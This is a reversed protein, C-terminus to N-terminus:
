SSPWVPLRRCHHHDPIQQAAAPHLLDTQQRRDRSPRRPCLLVGAPRLQEEGGVRDFCHRAEGSASTSLRHKTLPRSRAKRSHEYEGVTVLGPVSDFSRNVVQPADPDPWYPWQGSISLGAIIREPKWAAMHWPLSAAASHEMPLLPAAALEDYGSGQALDTMMQDLRKGAGLDFRFHGDFGPAVWVEAFDLEALTQRFLPHELIGIEEMNHQAFVVGRVHKCSPPIWLFARAEGPESGPGKPVPVSWQWEAACVSLNLFLAALGALLWRLAGLRRSTQATPFCTM